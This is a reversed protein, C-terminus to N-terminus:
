SYGHLTRGWLVSWNHGSVAWLQRVIGMNLGEQLLSWNQGSGAWLQTVIGM